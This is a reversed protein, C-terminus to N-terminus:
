ADPAGTDKRRNLHEVYDVLGREYCFRQEIVGDSRRGTRVGDPDDAAAGEADVTRRIADAVGAM